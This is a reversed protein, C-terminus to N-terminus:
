KHKSTSNPMKNTSTPGSPGGKVKDAGSRISGVRTGEGTTRNGGPSNGLGSGSTSVVGDAGLESFGQKKGM